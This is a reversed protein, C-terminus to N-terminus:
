GGGGGSVSRCGLRLDVAMEQGAILKELLQKMEKQEEARSKESADLRDQLIGLDKAFQEKLVNFEEGTSKKADENGEKVARQISRMRGDREKDREFNMTPVLVQLWSPFWEINELTDKSM